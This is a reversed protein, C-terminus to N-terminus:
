QQRFLNTSVFIVNYKFQDADNSAPTIGIYVSPNANHIKRAIDFTDEDYGISLEYGASKIADLEKQSYHYATIYTKM